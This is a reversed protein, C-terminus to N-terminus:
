QLQRNPNLPLCDNDQRTEVGWPFGSPLLQQCFADPPVPVLHMCHAVIKLGRATSASLSVAQLNRRQKPSRDFAGQGSTETKRSRALTNRLKLLREHRQIGRQLRPQHPAVLSVIRHTVDLGLQPSLVDYLAHRRPPLVSKPEQARRLSRCRTTERLLESNTGPFRCGHGRSRKSVRCCCSFAGM